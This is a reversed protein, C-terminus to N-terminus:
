NTVLEELTEGSENKKERETKIKRGGTEPRRGRPPHAEWTSQMGKGRRRM